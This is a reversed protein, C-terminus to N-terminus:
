ERIDLQPTGKQLLVIRQSKSTDIMRTRLAQGETYSRCFVPLSSCANSSSGIYVFEEVEVVDNNTVYAKRDQLEISM